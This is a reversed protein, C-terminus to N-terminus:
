ICHLFEKFFRQSFKQGQGENVVRIHAEGLGGLGAEMMELDWPPRRPLLGGWIPWKSFGTKTDAPAVYRPM